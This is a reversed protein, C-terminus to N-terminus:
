THVATTKKKLYVSTVKILLSIRNSVGPMNQLLSHPTYHTILHTQLNATTLKYTTSGYIIVQLSFKLPTEM